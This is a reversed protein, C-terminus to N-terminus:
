RPDLLLYTFSDKATGERWSVNPDPQEFQRRVIEDDDLVSDPLKVGSM